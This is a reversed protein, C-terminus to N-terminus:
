LASIYSPSIWSTFFNYLHSCVADDVVVRRCGVAFGRFVIVLKFDSVVLVLVPEMKWVAPLGIDKYSLRISKEKQLSKLWSGNSASGPLRLHSCCLTKEVEPPGDGGDPELKVNDAVISGEVAVALVILPVLIALIALVALIGWVM